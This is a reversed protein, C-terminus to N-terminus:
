KPPSSATTKFACSSHECSGNRQRQRQQHHVDSLWDSHLNMNTFTATLDAEARGDLSSKSDPRSVARDKTTIPYPVAYIASQPDAGPLTTPTPTNVSGSSQLRYTISPESPHPLAKSDGNSLSSLLNRPVKSSSTNHDEFVVSDSFPAFNSQTRRTDPQSQINTNAYFTTPDGFMDGSQPAGNRSNNCGDHTITGVLPQNTVVANDSRTNSDSKAGILGPPILGLQDLKQLLVLLQELTWSTNFPPAVSTTNAAAAAQVLLYCLHKDTRIVVASVIVIVGIYDCTFIELLSVRCASSPAHLM